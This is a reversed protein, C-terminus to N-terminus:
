GHFRSGDLEAGTQGRLYIERDTRVVMCSILHRPPRRWRPV